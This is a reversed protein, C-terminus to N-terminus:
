LSKALYLSKLKNKVHKDEAGTYASDSFMASGQLHQLNGHHCRVHIHIKWLAIEQFISATEYPLYFERTKFLTKIKKFDEM